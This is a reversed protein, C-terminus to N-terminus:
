EYHVPCSNKGILAYLACWGVLAEYLTFVAAATFIIRIVLGLPSFIAAALLVLGLSLRFVRDPTGINKKM